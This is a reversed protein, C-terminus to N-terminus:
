PQPKRAANERVIALVYEPVPPAGKARAAAPPWKGELALGRVERPSPAPDPWGLKAACAALRRQAAAEAADVTLMPMHASSALNAGGVDIAWPDAGRDLLLEAIRFREMDLATHLPRNGTSEAINPDAHFDLLLRVGALSNLEIATRIPGAGDHAPTAKAGARLLREAYWPEEARLAYVLPVGPTVGDAAAGKELLLDVADHSCTSEALVLMDFYVGFGVRALAPDTDLLRRARALDHDFLAEALDRASKGLRPDALTAARQPLVTDPAFCRAAGDGCGAIMAAAALLPFLAAHGHKSM